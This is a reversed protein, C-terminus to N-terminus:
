TLGSPLHLMVDDSFPTDLDCVLRKTLVAHWLIPLWYLRDDDTPALQALLTQSSARGGAVGVLQEIKYLDAEAPEINRYERLFKLNALRPTRIEKENAIHFEWGREAVYKEAEAFKLAYKAKNRELDDTSKIEVLRPKRVEGSMPDPWFHVLVDPTYGKPIGPVPITVPQEEFKEVTDDFDLLLMYEKELLSEFSSMDDNKCSSYGGTVGLYNKPIKRVPM